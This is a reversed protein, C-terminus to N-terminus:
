PRDEAKLVIYRSTEPTLRVTDSLRVRTVWVIGHQDCLLPWTIRRESPIREDIFFAKIRKERAMGLPRFRDGPHRPRLTLPPVIRDADIVEVDGSEHAVAIWPTPDDVEQVTLRLRLDDFTNEGPAITRPVFGAPSFTEGLRRDLRIQAPTVLLRCGPLDMSGRGRNAQHLMSEFHIRDWGRCSGFLERVMRRLAPIRLEPPLARYSTPDFRISDPDQRVCLCRWRLDLDADILRALAAITKSARSFADVWKPNIATLHPAVCHRLRNRTLSLDRNTTDERWTLRHQDAYRVIEDRCVEILPRLIVGSRAPMCALGDPGSGRILHMLFTEARDTASHGLCVYRAGVQAAVAQLFGLRLDHGVSEINQRRMDAWRPVDVQGGVFRVGLRSAAQEAFSGDEASDARIRHDLHAVVLDCGLDGVIRDLVHLLVTSDVGGSVAVVLRDGESLTAHDRITNRVLEMLM